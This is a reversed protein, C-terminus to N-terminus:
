KCYLAEAHAEGLRGDYCNVSNLAWTVLWFFPARQRMGFIKRKAQLLKWNPHYENNCGFNSCYHAWILPDKRLDVEAEPWRACLVVLCYNYIYYPRKRIISLYTESAPVRETRLAGLAAVPHMTHLLRFLKRKFLTAQMPGFHDQQTINLSISISWAEAYGNIILAPAGM